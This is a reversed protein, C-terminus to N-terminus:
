HNLNLLVYTAGICFMLSFLFYATLILWDKNM